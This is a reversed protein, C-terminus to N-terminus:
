LRRNNYIHTGPYKGNSWVKDFATDMESIIADVDYVPSEHFSMVVLPCYDRLLELENSVLDCEAGEINTYLVFEDLRFEDILEDLTTASVDVVDTTKGHDDYLSSNIYDERVNIGVTETGSAYAANVVEFNRCNLEGTRKLAPIIEPNAEIAIHRNADDLASNVRASMYGLGAGMELVDCGMEAIRIEIESVWEERPGFEGLQLRREYEPPFGDVSADLYVGGGKMVKRSRLMSRVFNAVAPTTIACATSAVGDRRYKSFAREILNM